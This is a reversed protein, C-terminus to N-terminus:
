KKSNQDSTTDQNQQNEGTKESAEDKQGKQKEKNPDKITGDDNLDMGDDYNPNDKEDEPTAGHYTEKRYKKLDKDFEEGYKLSLQEVHDKVEGSIYDGRKVM